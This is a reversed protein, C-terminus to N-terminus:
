SADARVVAGVRQLMCDKGAQRVPQPVALAQQYLAFRCRFAAVDLNPLLAESPGTM